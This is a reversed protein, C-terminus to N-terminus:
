YNFKTQPKKLTEVLNHTLKMSIKTIKMNQLKVNPQTTRKLFIYVYPM